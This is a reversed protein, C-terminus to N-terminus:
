KLGAVIEIILQAKTKKKNGINIPINLKKADEQLEDLKMTKENYKKNQLNKKVDNNNVQDHSDPLKIQTIILKSNNDQSIDDIYSKNDKFNDDENDDKNDDETNEDDINYAHTIQIDSTEKKEVDHITLDKVTDIIPLTQETDDNLKNKQEIQNQQKILYLIKKDHLSLKVDKQSSLYKDLETELSLQTTDIYKTIDTTCGILHQILPSDPLLCYNYDFCLPEFNTKNILLLLINKKFPSINDVINFTDSEIDIVFINLHLHDSLLKLVTKTTNMTKIQLITDNKNWKLEKYKFDLFKSNVFSVLNQNLQKVYNQQYSASQFKFDPKICTLISTYLSIHKQEDNYKQIGTRTLNNKFNKIIGTIFDPCNGLEKTANQQLSIIKEVITDNFSDNNSENKEEQLSIEKINNNENNLELFNEKIFELLDTTSIKKQNINNNNINNNNNNNNNNDFRDFRNYKSLNNNSKINMFLAM